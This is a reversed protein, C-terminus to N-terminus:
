NMLLARKYLVSKGAKVVILYVDQQFNTLNIEFTHEKVGKKEDGYIQANTSARLIALTLDSTKALKVQVTFKGFNPNPYVIMEQVINSDQYHLLSDTKDIDKKDFIKITRIKMNNCDGKRVTMKVPYEGESLIAFALKSARNDITLAETPLEWKIEDPTPSSIDLATITDGIFAQVTMLFDAKLANENNQLRYEYNKTCGSANSVALRYLGPEVANFQQENKLQAVPTGNFYWETFKGPNNALLIVEQGKCVPESQPFSVPNLKDPSNITVSTAAICGNIDKASFTYRGAGLQTYKWEQSSSVSTATIGPSTVTYPTTGGDVTLSITANTDAFCLPQTASTRTILAKPWTLKVSRVTDECGKRDTVKFTYEAQTLGEFTGKPQEFANDKLYRYGGNGGSALLTIKGNQEGACLPHIKETVNLDLRTPEVLTLIASQECQKSDRVRFRYAGAKLNRFTSDTTYAFGDLSYQYGPTGGLAVVKVVGNQEGFCRVTDSNIASLSVQSPQIVQVEKSFLCGKADKVSVQYNGSQLNEFLGDAGYGGHNLAYTYGPTAGTGAVEIKATQDNFCKNNTILINGDLKSPQELVVQVPHVCGNADRVEIPYTASVLNVFNVANNTAEYAQGNLLARYGPTGGALTLNISGNADGNCVPPITTFQSTIRSPWKLEIAPLSASCGRHDTVKILYSSQSLGTFESQPQQVTNDLSYTYSGNGGSAAVTIAGDKGEFCLPDKKSVERLELVEPQTLSITQSTTCGKIDKAFFQYSGLALNRFLSDPLYDTGNRSFLYSPTGGTTKIKVVGNSEGFCRITDQYVPLITLLDPQKVIANKTHICGNADKAYTTYSRATLQEFKGSTQYTVGDLSYSYGPTGGNAFLELSGTQDAYCDNDKKTFDSTLQTPQVLTVRLSDVCGLRNKAYLKYTGVQLNSFTGYDSFAGGNIAYSFPGVNNDGRVSISGSNGGYCLVDQRSVLQLDARNQEKIEIGIVTKCSLPTDQIILNYVTPHLNSYLRDASFPSGNLSLEYTGSGGTISTINLNAVPTSCSVPEITYSAKIGSPISLDVEKKYSCLDDAVTVIYTGNTLGNFVPNTGFTNQSSISYQYPPRGGSLSTITISGDSNSCNTPLVKSVDYRINTSKPIITVPFDKTCGSQDRATVTYDGASLNEFFGTTNSQAGIPNFKFDLGSLLYTFNGNSGDAQVLAEGKQYYECDVDKKSILSVTIASPQSLTIGPLSFLCNNADKGYVTYTGSALDTFVSSSQFQSNDLSVQYPATGGANSVEIRGINTQYCTLNVQSAVSISYAQSPQTIQAAIQRTCGNGDKIVFNYSSAALGSFESSTQFTSGNSSYLYPSTGGSATLKATGDNGGFCKVASQETVSGLLETPQTLTATSTERICGNADKVWVKYTGTALSGFTASAQYATGDISYQYPTTGGSSSAQIIGSSGNFCLVQQQISTEAVLDAPQSLSVTITNTCSSADRATFTYSGASLGSFTGSSQYNSGDKSYTFTGTGGTASLTVSGDIGSFCKVDVPTAQPIIQSPQSLSLIESLRTCGNNDKVTVQYNGANLGSFTGTNSFTTGDIAYTLLGTGGSATVQIQGNAGGFCTVTSSVTPAVSIQSPQLIEGSTAATCGNADKITLAYTGASLSQLTSSSQFTTGDKSYEYPSTGGTGSLTFTGNAGGFCTADKKNFVTVAVLSPQTLEIISSEKVCGNADKVWVKYSGANLGSFSSDPSFVTGNISFQYPSVGSSATTKIKGDSLGNCSVAKELSPTIALAGPQSLTTSLAISCSNDKVVISYSGASLSTFSNGSQFTSGNNISYQLPGNAVSGTTTITFAGTNGGYCSINQIAEVTAILNSNSTLTENVSATCGNDDKVYFTYSGAALGSFDPSNSFYVGDKSYLFPTTGGTAQLTVSGSNGGSCSVNTKSSVSVSLTSPASITVTRSETCGSADRVKVVYSGASLGSFVPNTQFSGNDLAYLMPALGGTTAITIKGNSQGNCSVDVVSPNIVIDEAVQFQQRTYLVGDVLVSVWQRGSQMGSWTVPTSYDLGASSGPTLTGSSAEYQVFRRMEEVLLNDIYARYYVGDYTIKYVSNPTGPYNKRSLIGGLSAKEISVGTNGIQRFAMARFGFSRDGNPNIGDHHYELSIPTAGSFHTNSELKINANSTISGDPNISYSPTGQFGNFNIDYGDPNLSTPGNTLPSGNILFTGNTAETFIYYSVLGHSDITLPSCKGVPLPNSLKSYPAYEDNPGIGNGTQGGGQPVEVYVYDDKVVQEFPISGCDDTVKFIDGPKMLGFDMEFAYYSGSFFLTRLSTSPIPVNNVYLHIDSVNSCASQYVELQRDTYEIPNMFLKNQALVPVATLSAVTFLLCFFLITHTTHKM